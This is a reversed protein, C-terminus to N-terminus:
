LLVVPLDHGAIPASIRLELDMGRGPASLSVPHVSIVPVETNVPIHQTLKLLYNM